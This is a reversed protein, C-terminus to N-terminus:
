RLASAADALGASVVVVAVVLEMGLLSRELVAAKMCCGGCEKSAEVEGCCCSVALCLWLWLRCLRVPRGGAMGEAALLM